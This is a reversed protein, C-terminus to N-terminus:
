KKSKNLLINIAEESNINRSGYRITKMGKLREIIRGRILDNDEETPMWDGFLEEPVKDFSSSMDTVNFGRRKAENYLSLYRDRAYKLKNKFFLVHGKGLRFSTTTKSKSKTLHALRVIERHEAILHQDCLYMPPISANIRTM